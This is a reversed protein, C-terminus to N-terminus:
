GVNCNEELREVLDTIKKQVSVLEYYGALRVHGMAPDAWNIEALNMINKLQRIVPRLELQDNTM